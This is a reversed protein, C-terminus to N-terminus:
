YLRTCGLGIQDLSMTTKSLDKVLLSESCLIIEDRGSQKELKLKEWTTYSSPKDFFFFSKFSYAISLTSFVVPLQSLAMSHCTM